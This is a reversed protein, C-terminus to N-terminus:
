QSTSSRTLSNNILMLSIFFGVVYAVLIMSVGSEMHHSREIVWGILPQFLAGSIVVAMNNFAMAAGRVNEAHNESVLSFTLAQGACAFGAVFLAFGLVFGSLTIEIIAAFALIGLGASLTLPLVKNKLMTSLLGFLPSGVALGFWMMSCYFAAENKSLGDLSQLFPVGWLSAFGSMPAWLLCAYAAIFWTQPQSIIVSLSAKVHTPKAEVSPHGHRGVLFLTVFALIVGMVSLLYMTHRWGLADVLVSIPMQGAMAGLAALAQTIGALMSFWKSHFLRSAMVLVSVYAFASGIGMLLRAICALYVHNASGFLSLGIACIMIAIFIIKRPSIRDFLLGSPIQMAAYTYFYVSSMFGLSLASITLDRMLDQAIVSPSVQVGMEFFLFLSVAIYILLAKGFSPNTSLSPQVSM